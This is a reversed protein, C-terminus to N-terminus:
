HFKYMGAKNYLFSSLKRSIIIINRCCQGCICLPRPPPGGFTRNNPIVTFWIDYVTILGIKKDNFSKNMTFYLLVM